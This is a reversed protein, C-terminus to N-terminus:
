NVKVINGTYLENGITVRYTLMGSLLTSTSTFAISHIGAAYSGSSNISTNSSDLLQISVTAAEGLEVDFTVADSTPNPYVSLVKHKIEEPQLELTLSVPKLNLDPDYFLNEIITHDLEIYDEIDCVQRLAKIHLKFLNKTTNNLVIPSGAYDIWMTRLEGDNINTEGFNDLSFPSVDGQNYGLIQVAGEDFRIGMQYGDIKGPANAKVLVVATQGTELCTHPDASFSYGHDENLMPVSVDASFDVDGSKIGRFSWNAPMSVDPDLLNLTIDDLYSKGSPSQSALYTRNGGSSYWIATFPNNEFYPEFMFQPHLVYEPLFRWSPVQQFSGIGLIVKRMILLDQTTISGSNNVDAAIWRYPRELEETALVHRRITLVDFTTVGNNHEFIGSTNGPLFQGIAYDEDESFQGTCETVAYEGATSSVKVCNQSSSEEFVNIRVEDMPDFEYSSSTQRVRNVKGKQAVYFVDPQTINSCEPLETDLLFARNPHTLLSALLVNLQMSTFHDRFAYYSMLNTRDPYYEYPLPVGNEIVICPNTGPDPCLTYYNPNYVTPEIYGPGPDVPTDSIYDGTCLPCTMGACSNCNECVVSWLPNPNCSNDPLYAIGSRQTHELAFNHGLEHALNIASGVGVLAVAAYEQGIVSATGLAGKDLKKVIYVNVAEAYHAANYLNAVGAQTNQLWTSNIADTTIDCVFFKMGNTYYINTEEVMEFIEYIIYDLPADVPPAGNDDNVLYFHV